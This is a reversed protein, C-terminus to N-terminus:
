LGEGVNENPSEPEPFHRNLTNVLSKLTIPKSLHDNMGADMCQQRHESFAHATLAVILAPKGKRGKEYSRITRSAEYGDMEPMSCDMLILDYDEGHQQYDQVAQIGNEVINIEHGLESMFGRIVEQNNLMDEAVLVRLGSRITQFSHRNKKNEAEKDMVLEDYFRNIIGWRCMEFGNSIASIPRDEIDETLIIWKFARQAPQIVDPQDERNSDDNGSEGDMRDEASVIGLLQLQEISQMEEDIIVGLLRYSEEKLLLSLQQRSVCRIVRINYCIFHTALLDCLESRSWVVIVQSPRSFDYMGVVNRLRYEGEDHANEIAGTRKDEENKILLSATIYFCSGAGAKSEVGIGGGMLTSLQKSIALGLGTGGYKRSTSADVQSFAAFLKNQAGESIGVGSDRVSFKVQGPVLPDVSASLLIYGDETFKFANGVLNILIQRLRSPDGVLEDPVLPQVSFYLPIKTRKVHSYFIGQVGQLLEYLSFPIRELSLKGAEIKSFDLIDNIICLLSEASSQVLNNYFQQKKELETLGMLQSMGIISNMPTRIEHSMQALFDSKVQASTEAEYSERILTNIREGLAFSFLLAELAFAILLSHNTLLTREILGLMQGDFLALFVGVTMWIMLFYFALRDGKIAGYLAVGLIFQLMTGMQIFYMTAVIKSDISDFLALTLFLSSVWALIYPYLRPYKNRFDMYSLIFFCLGVLSGYGVVWVGVLIIANPVDSYLDYDLGYYFQFFWGLCFQGLSYWLHTEDRTRLGIFLNFVGLAMIISILFSIGVTLYLTERAYRDARYIRIPLSLREPADARFVFSGSEFPELTLRWTFFRHKSDREVKVYDIGLDSKYYLDLSVFLAKPWDVEIIWESNSSQNTMPLKVWALKDKFLFSVPGELTKWGGDIDIIGDPSKIEYQNNLRYEIPSSIYQSKFQDHLVFHSNEIEGAIAGFCVGLGFIACLCFGLGNIRKAM